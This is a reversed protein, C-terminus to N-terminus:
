KGDGKKIPREKTAQTYSEGLVDKIGVDITVTPTMLADLVSEAVAHRPDSFWARVRDNGAGLGRFVNKLAELSSAAEGYCQDLVIDVAFDLQGTVTIEQSIKVPQRTTTIDLTSWPSIKTTREKDTTDERGGSSEGGTEASATLSIKTESEIGYLESGAKLTQELSSEIAVKWNSSWENWERRGSALKFEDEHPTDNPRSDVDVVPDGANVKVIEGYQRDIIDTVRLGYFKIQCERAVTSDRGGFGYHPAGPMRYPSYIYVYGGGEAKETSRHFPRSLNAQSRWSSQQPTRWDHGEGIPAVLPALERALQPLTEDILKRTDFGSM